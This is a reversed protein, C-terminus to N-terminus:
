EYDSDSEATESDSSSDSVIDVESVIADIFKLYALSTNKRKVEQKTIMSMNIVRQSKAGYKKPCIKEIEEENFGSKRLMAQANRVKTIKCKSKNKSRQPEKERQRKRKREFDPVVSAGYKKSLVKSTHSVNNEYSVLKRKLEEVQNIFATTAQYESTAWMKLELKNNYLKTKRKHLVDLLEDLSKRTKTIHCAARSAFSVDKVTIDEPVSLYKQFFINEKAIIGAAYSAEIAEIKAIEQRTDWRFM